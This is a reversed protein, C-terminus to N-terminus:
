PKPIIISFLFQKAENKIHFIGDYKEIVEIINTIGIGHEEKDQKSSIYKGKSLMAKQPSTNQISLVFDEGSQIKLKIEKYECQESSEIAYLILSKLVSIRFFACMTFAGILLLIIVKPFFSLQLLNILYYDLLLIGVFLAYGSFRNSFERREEFIDVFLIIATLELAMMALSELLVMM